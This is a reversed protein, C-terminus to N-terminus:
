RYVPYQGNIPELIHETTQTGLELTCFRADCFVVADLGFFLRALQRVGWFGGDLRASNDFQKREM